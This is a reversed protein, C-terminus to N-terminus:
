QQQKDFEAKLQNYWVQCDLHFASREGQSCFCSDRSQNSLQKRVENLQKCNYKTQPAALLQEIKNIQEQTM